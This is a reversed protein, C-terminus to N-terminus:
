YFNGYNDIFRIYSCDSSASEVGFSTVTFNYHEGANSCILEPRKVDKHISSEASEIQFTVTDEIFPDADNTGCRGKVTVSITCGIPPMNSISSLSLDYALGKEIGVSAITKANQVPVAYANITIEKICADENKNYTPGPGPCSCIPNYPENGIKTRPSQCQCSCTSTNWIGGTLECVDGSYSSPCKCTNDRWVQPSVCAAACQKTSSNYNPMDGACARCCGGEDEEYSNATRESGSPCATCAKKCVGNIEEKDDPCSCVGNLAKKGGTCM